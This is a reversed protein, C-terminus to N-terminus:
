APRAFSSLRALTSRSCGITPDIELPDTIPDPGVTPTLDVHLPTVWPTWVDRLEDRLECRLPGTSNESVVRQDDNFRLRRGGTEIQELDLLNLLDKLEQKM